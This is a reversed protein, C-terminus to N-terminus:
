FQELESTQIMAFQYPKVSKEQLNKDNAYIEEWAYHNVAMNVITSVLKSDIHQMYSKSFLIGFNFFSGKKMETM